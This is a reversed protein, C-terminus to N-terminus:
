SVLFARDWKPEIDSILSILVLGIGAIEDLLGLQQNRGKDNYKKFGANLTNNNGFKLIEDMWYDIAIKFNENKTNQYFRNFIHAIGATGHCFGADFVNQLKLDKRFAAHSMIFLAENILISDNFIQGAKYLAIAIGLDGNCWAMRSNRSHTEGVIIYGPYMSTYEGNTTNKRQLIFQIAKSCLIKVKEQYPYMQYFEALFIIISSMGHSISFNTVETPEKKGLFIHSKWHVTNNEEIADHTLQDILTELYEKKNPTNLNLISFAIGIAGHLFDYNKEQILALLKSGLFELFLHSEFDELFIFGEKIQHDLTWLIGGLGNSFTPTNFGQNLKEFINHYLSSSLHPHDVEFKKYLQYYSLFLSIGSDGYILGIDNDAIYNKEITKYICDIKENISTVKIADSIVPTWM